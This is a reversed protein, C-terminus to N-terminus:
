RAGLYNSGALLQKTFGKKQSQLKKYQEEWDTMDYDIEEAPKVEPLKIKKTGLFNSLWSM